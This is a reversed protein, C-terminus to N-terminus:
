EMLLFYDERRAASASKKAIGGNGINNKFFSLKIDMWRWLYAM